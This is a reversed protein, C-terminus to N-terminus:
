PSFMSVTASLVEFYGDVMKLDLSRAKEREIQFLGASNFMFMRPWLEKKRFSVLDMVPISFKMSYFLLHDIGSSQMVSLHLVPLATLNSSLHMSHFTCLKGEGAVYNKYIQGQVDCRRAPPRRYVNISVMELASCGAWRLIFFKYM